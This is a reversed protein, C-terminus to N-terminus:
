SMSTMSEYETSASRPKVELVTTSVTGEVSVTRKSATARLARLYSEEVEPGQPGEPRFSLPFHHM